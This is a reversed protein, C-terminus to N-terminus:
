DGLSESSRILYNRYTSRIRKVYNVTEISHRGTVQHLVDAVPQWEAPNGAIRQAKIINGAGANYSAAALNHRERDPRPAKYIGRMRSMYWAGGMLNLEPDFPNGRLGTKESIERWTAPMLQSLGM